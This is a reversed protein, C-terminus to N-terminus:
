IRPTSNVTPLSEMNRDKLGAPHLYHCLPSVLPWGAHGSPWQSTVCLGCYICSPSGQTQSAPGVNFWCQTFTDHQLAKIGATCVMFIGRSTHSLASLSPLTSTFSVLASLWPLSSSSPSVPAQSPLRCLPNVRTSSPANRIIYTTNLLLPSYWQFWLYQWFLSLFWSWNFLYNM